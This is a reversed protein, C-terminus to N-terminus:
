DVPDVTTKESVYIGDLFKRIDKKKVLVAQHILAAIFELSFIKNLYIWDVTEKRGNYAGSLSVKELDNGWVMIEDKTGTHKCQVGPLMKVQRTFKEGLFNRIDVITDEVSTTINIPFHAYVARM